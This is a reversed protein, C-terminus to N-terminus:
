KNMNQLHMTTGTSMKVPHLKIFSNPIRELHTQTFELLHHHVPLGPTSRFMPDCLTLCSQTVSSFQNECDEKVWYCFLRPCGSHALCKRSATLIFSATVDLFASACSILCVCPSNHNQYMISMLFHRCLSDFSVSLSQPFSKGSVM